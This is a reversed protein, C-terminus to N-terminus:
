VQRFGFRRRNVFLLALLAAAVLSLGLRFRLRTDALARQWFPARRLREAKVYDKMNRLTGAPLKAERAAQLTQEAKDLNGQLLALSWTFVLTDPDKPALRALQQTCKQLRAADSMRTGLSCQLRAAATAGEDNKLQEQIHTAIADVDEVDSASLTGPKHDILLRVYRVNDEVTVGVKGLATRCADIAQAYDGAAELEQCTKVFSLSRDPVAKALAQWFKAAERHDGRKAAAEAKESLLMIHYGMQLPQQMAEQASPVSGVPDADDIAFKSTLADADDASAPLAHASCLALALLAAARLRAMTKDMSRM